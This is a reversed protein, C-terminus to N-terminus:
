CYQLLDDRGNAICSAVRESHAWEVIRKALAIQKGTLYVVPACGCMAGRLEQLDGYYTDEIRKYRDADYPIEKADMAAMTNFLRNAYFEIDHAHKAASFPYTKAM